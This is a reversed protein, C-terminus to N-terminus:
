DFPPFFKRYGDKSIEKDIPKAEIGTTNIPTASQNQMRLISAETSQLSIENSQENKNSNAMLRTGGAVMGLEAESILKKKDIM